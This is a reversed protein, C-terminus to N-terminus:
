GVPARDSSVAASHALRLTCDEKRSPCKRWEQRRDVGDYGCQLRVKVDSGRAQRSSLLHTHTLKSAAVQRCHNAQQPRRHTARRNQTHKHHRLPPFSQLCQKLIHSPLYAADDDRESSRRRKRSATAPLSTRRHFHVAWSQLSVRNLM